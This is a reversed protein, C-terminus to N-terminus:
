YIKSVIIKLNPSAISYKSAPQSALVFLCISCSCSVAPRCIRASPVTFPATPLPPRHPCLVGCLPAHATAYQAVAFGGKRTSLLITLIARCKMRQRKNSTRKTLGSREIKWLPNATRLPPVLHKTVLQFLLVRTLIPEHFVFLLLISNFFIFSFWKPKCLTECTAVRSASPNSYSHAYKDV